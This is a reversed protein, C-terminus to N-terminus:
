KYPYSVIVNGDGQNDYIYIGVLNNNACAAAATASAASPNNICVYLGEQSYVCGTVSNPNNPDTQYAACNTAHVYNWGPPMNGFACAIRAHLMLAGAALTAQLKM